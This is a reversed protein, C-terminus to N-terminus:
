KTSPVEELLARIPRAPNICYSSPGSLSRVTGIKGEPMTITDGVKAAQGVCHSGEAGTFGDGAARVVSGPIWIFFCGSLVFPLLLATIFKM